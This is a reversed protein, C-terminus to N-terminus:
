LWGSHCDACPVFKASVSLYYLGNSVSEFGVLLKDSFSSDSLQKSSNSERLM